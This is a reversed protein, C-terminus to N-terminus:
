EDGGHSGEDEPIYFVRVRRPEEETSVITNGRMAAAKEKMKELFEEDDWRFPTDPPLEMLGVARPTGPPLYPLAEVSLPDVAAPEGTPNGGPSCSACWPLFVCVFACSVSRLSM